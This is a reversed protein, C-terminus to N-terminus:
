SQAERRDRRTRGAVSLDREMRRRAKLSRLTLALMAVLTVATLGYAPWIFAAYGGMAFFTGLDQVEKNEKM